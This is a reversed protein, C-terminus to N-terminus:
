SMPNHGPETRRRRAEGLHHDRGLVLADYSRTDGVDAAPLVEVVTDDPLDARLAEAIHTAFQTTSGHRSAASVLIKM